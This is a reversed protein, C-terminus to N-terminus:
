GQIRTKYVGPEKEIIKVGISNEAEKVKENLQQRTVIQGNLKVKEELEMEKEKKSKLFKSFFAM